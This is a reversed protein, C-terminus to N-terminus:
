TSQPATYAYTAAGPERSQKPTKERRSREGRRAEVRGAGPLLAGAAVRRLVEEQEVQVEGAGGGRKEGRLPAASQFPSFGLVAQSALSPSPGPHHLRVTLATHPCPHGPAGPNAARAPEVVHGARLPRWQAQLTVSLPM